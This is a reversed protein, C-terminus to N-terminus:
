NLCSLKPDTACEVAKLADVIGRTQTHAEHGKIVRVTKRLIKVTQVASLKSNASRVLGAVGSVVAAAQSTGSGHDYKGEWIGMLEDGPALMSVTKKGWNSGEMLDDDETSAGITLLHPMQFKAPYTNVYDLNEEDNGAAVVVVADKTGAYEIAAKLDEDYGEGAFSSNIVQAGEDAAYYISSIADDTDGLGEGNIFRLAMLSCRPCVGAGGEGNEKRAAVLSAMFTGHGTKDFPLHCKRVYDWGIIDDIYKNNDKDIGNAPFEALKRFINPALDPHNYEIGSDVIAVRVSSLGETVKWAQLARVNGLHWMEKLLPDTAQSQIPVPLLAPPLNASLAVTSQLSLTFVLSFVKLLKKM